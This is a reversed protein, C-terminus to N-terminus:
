YQFFVFVMNEVLGWVKKVQLVLVILNESFPLYESIQLFSLENMGTEFKKIIKYWLLYKKLCISCNPPLPLHLQNIPTLECKMSGPNPVCLISIDFVSISEASHLRNIHLCWAVECIHIYLVVVLSLKNYHRLFERTDREYVLHCGMNNRQQSDWCSLALWKWQQYINRM